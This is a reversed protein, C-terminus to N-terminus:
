AHAAANFHFWGVRNDFEGRMQKPKSLRWGCCHAGRMNYAIYRLPLMMQLIRCALNANLLGM